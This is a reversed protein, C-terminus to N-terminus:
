APPSLAIRSRGDSPDATTVPMAGISPVPYWVWYRTPASRFTSPSATEAEHLSPVVVTTGTVASMTLPNSLEATVEDSGSVM